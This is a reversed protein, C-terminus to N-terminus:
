AEDGETVDGSVRLTCSAEAAEDDATPLSNEWATVFANFTFNAVGTAPETVVLVVAKAGADPDHSDDRLKQQGADEMDARMELGLEGLDILGAVHELFGGSDSDTMDVEGKSFGPFDIATLGGVATGDYTVTAGHALFKGM